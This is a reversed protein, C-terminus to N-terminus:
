PTTPPPPTESIGTVEIWLDCGYTVDNNPVTPCDVPWDQGVSGAVPPVKLDVTWGDVTDGVLKSLNGSAQGPNPWTCSTGNWYSPHSTDNNDATENDIKSLFPCLTIYHWGTPNHPTENTTDPVCTPDNPVIITEGNLGVLEEHVPCPKLKQNIVYAVDDVRTADLFSQSLQVTFDRMVYEQPFVIGFKIEEPHVDLANEIHATVNIVHAEYASLAAVGGAVAVVAVLGLAIKKKMKTNVGM